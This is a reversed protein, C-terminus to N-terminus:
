EHSFRQMMSQARKMNAVQMRQEGKAKALTLIAQWVQPDAEYHEFLAEILVERSIGNAKCVESLRESLETELRITSQKTKLEPHTSVKIDQYRSTSIDQSSSDLIDQDSSIKTDQSISNSIDQSSSVKIDQYGSTSIDQSSSDSIDQTSSSLSADRTPVNPRQRKKLRELADDSM